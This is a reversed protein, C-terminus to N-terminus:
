KTDDLDPIPARQSAITGIVIVFVLFISLVEVIAMAKSLPGKPHIDGFGLTTGTVVSYYLADISGSIPQSLSASIPFLM